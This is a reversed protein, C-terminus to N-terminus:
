EGLAIRDKTVARLVMNLVSWVTAIAAANADIWPKVAGAQPVFLVALSAAGMIANLVITKSQWPKKSEM